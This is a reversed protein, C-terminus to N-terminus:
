KARVNLKGRPETSQFGYGSWERSDLDPGLVRGSTWVEIGIERHAKTSSALKIKYINVYLEGNALLSSTNGM